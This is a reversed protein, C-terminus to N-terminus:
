FAWKTCICKNTTYYSVWQVGWAEPMPSYVTCLQTLFNKNWDIYCCLSINFLRVTHIGLLAYNLKGVQYTPVYVSYAINKHSSYHMLFLKLKYRIRINLVAKAKKFHSLQYFACLPDGGSHLTGCHNVFMFPHVTDMFKDSFWMKLFLYDQWLMWIRLSHITM